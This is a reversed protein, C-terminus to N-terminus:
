RAALVAAGGVAVLVHTHEDAAALTVLHGEGGLRRRVMAACAPPVAVILRGGPRLMRTLELVAHRDLLAARRSDAVIVDFGGGGPLGDARWAASAYHRDLQALGELTDFLAPAPAIALVSRRAALVDTHALLVAELRAEARSSGRAGSIARQHM